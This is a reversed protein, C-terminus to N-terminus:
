PIRVVGTEYVESKGNVSITRRPSQTKDRAWRMSVLAGCEARCDELAINADANGVVMPGPATKVVNELRIDIVPYDKRPLDPHLLRAWGSIEWSCSVPRACNMKVNRFVVRRVDARRCGDAQQHYFNLGEPSRWVGQRHVPRVFSAVENTSVEGPYVTYVDSGVTFLDRFQLRMGPRWEMWAGTIVRAFNCAGGPEDEVNEILGDTISGIRPTCDGPWEGANIAIGDDHTRLRGNRIVFNRGCNLHIGDKKGRLVFGDITLGDFDVVQIAFQYSNFDELRVNSIELRDIGCFGLQGRLGHAPSDLKPVGEFGNVAVTVGRLAIDHNRLPLFAGRNAFVNAYKAAKSFVVGEECELTTEDDLLITRDLRYMGPAKIKLTRRGGELAKQLAVANDAPEADPSVGFAAADLVVHALACSTQGDAPRLSAAIGKVRAPNQRPFSDVAPCIWGGGTVVCLALWGAIKRMQM